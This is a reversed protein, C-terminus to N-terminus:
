SFFTRLDVDFSHLRGIALPHGAHTRCVSGREHLFFVPSFLFIFRLALTFVAYIPVRCAVGFSFKGKQRYLGLVAWIRPNHSTSAPPHPAGLKGAPSPPVGGIPAVYPPFRPSPPSSPCFLVSGTENLPALRAGGERQPPPPPPPPEPGFFLGRLHPNACRTARRQRKQRRQKNNQKTKWTPSKYRSKRLVPTPPSASSPM